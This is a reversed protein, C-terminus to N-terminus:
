DDGKKYKRYFGFITKHYSGLDTKLQDIELQKRDIDAQLRKNTDSVAELRAVNESAIRLDDKCSLLQRQLLIIENKLQDVTQESETAKAKIVAVRSGKRREDLIKVAENDLVRTRGDKTIHGDIEPSAKKVAQRVAEYTINRTRAYEQLTM